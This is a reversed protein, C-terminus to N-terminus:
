TADADDVVARRVPRQDLRAVLQLVLLLEIRGVEPQAAVRERLLQEVEDVRVIADVDDILVAVPLHPAQDLEFAVRLLDRLQPADLVIVPQRDVAARQRRFQQLLLLYIPSSFRIAPFTLMMPSSDVAYRPAFVVSQAPQPCLEIVSRMMSENKSSPM